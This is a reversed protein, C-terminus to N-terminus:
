SCQTLEELMGLFGDRCHEVTSVQPWENGAYILSAEGLELGDVGSAWLPLPPSPASHKRRARRWARQRGAWRCSGELPFRDPRGLHSPDVALVKCDDRRTLSSCISGRHSTSVAIFLRIVSGTGQSDQYPCLASRPHDFHLWDIAETTANNGPLSTLRQLFRAVSWCRAAAGTM